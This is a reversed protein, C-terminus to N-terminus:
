DACFRADKALEAIRVIEFKQGDICGFARAAEWRLEFWIRAARPIRDASPNEVFALLAAAANARPHKVDAATAVVVERAGPVGTKLLALIACEAALPDPDDILTRLVLTADARPQGLALIAARREMGQEARVAREIRLREEPTGQSGLTMWA